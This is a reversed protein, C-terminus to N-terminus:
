SGHDCALVRGQNWIAKRQNSHHGPRYNNVNQPDLQCDGLEGILYEHLDTGCIGCWEVDVLVEDSTPEPVDVNEVKINRPGYYRVARMSQKERAM